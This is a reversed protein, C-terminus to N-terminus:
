VEVPTVIIMREGMLDQVFFHSGGFGTLFYDRKLESKQEDDLILKPKTFAEENAKVFQDVYHKWNEKGTSYPSRDVDSNFTGVAYSIIDACVAFPSDEFYPKEITLVLKQM